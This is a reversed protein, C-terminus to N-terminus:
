NIEFEEGFYEAHLEKYRALFEADTCPALEDHVQERIADDMYNAFTEMDIEMHSM